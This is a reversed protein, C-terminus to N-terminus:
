GDQMICINLIIAKFVIIDKISIICIVMRLITSHKWRQCLPANSSSPDMTQQLSAAFLILVRAYWVTRNSVVFAGHDLGPPWIVVLDLRHSGAECSVPQM